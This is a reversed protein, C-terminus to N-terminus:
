TRQICIELDFSKDNTYETFVKAGSFGGTLTDTYINFQLNNKSKAHEFIHRMHGEIVKNRLANPPAGASTGVKIFPENRAFEGRLRSIMPELVPAEINPRNLSQNISRETTSISSLFIFRRMENFREYNSRFSKYAHEILKKIRTHEAKNDKVGPIQM